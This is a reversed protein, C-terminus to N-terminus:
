VLRFQVLRLCISWSSITVFSGCILYNRSCHGSFKMGTRHCYNDVGANLLVYELTTYNSKMHM